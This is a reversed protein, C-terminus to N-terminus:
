HSELFNSVRVYMLKEMLKNFIPLLSIPRYNTVEFPSNAKFIQIVKAYKMIRPCNGSTFSENILLTLPGIIAHKIMKVLKIPIGYADSSKKADLNSIVDCVEFETVPKLFLSNPQPDNLYDTYKMSTTGLKNVLNQAIGTFFENFNNAVTKQNDIISNGIKISIGSSNKKSTKGLLDNIGKWTKKANNRCNEFYDKYYNSKSKRILRNLMDRYYKYRQYWFNDKSKLFRKYLKNKMSISKLIGSTIWPKKRLKAQKNSLKKLPAHKNISELIKDQFHQFKGDLDTSNHPLLRVSNVDSVFEDENFKKFDRKFQPIRKSKSVSKNLIVFNPMHDSIKSILNGSWANNEISNIFINDILSPKQSDTYRSPQLILPQLFNAFTINLFEEVVPRKDYALLDLNFDGSVIILKNEKMLKKLTINLYDLFQSPDRRPHNYIVGSLVNAGKANVIEVWQSEFECKESKFSKNLDNRNHFNLSDKIFFGCGGNKSSGQLGFYPHFGPINLNKFRSDNSKSHWTETLALVDFDLDLDLLLSELKDFNGLLSSINSHLLSFREKDSLSKKILKHFKHNSFYDFNDHFHVHNDIDEDYRSDHESPNLKCLELKELLQYDRIDICSNRCPCM